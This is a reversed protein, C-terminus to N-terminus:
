LLRCLRNHQLQQLARALSPDVAAGPALLAGQGANGTLLMLLVGALSQVLVGETSSSNTAAQDAATSATPLHVTHEYVQLFGHGCCVSHSDTAFLVWAHVMAAGGQKLVSALSHQQSTHTGNYNVAWFQM